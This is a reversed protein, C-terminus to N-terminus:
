AAHQRMFSDVADLLIPVLVPEVAHSMGDIVKLEAGPILFATDEGGALPILPDDRGHLVLTPREIAKLLEERERSAMTAAMQRVPGEPYISREFSKEAEARQYDEGPNFGPGALVMRAHTGIKIAEDRDYPDLPRTMLVASAEPTAQPLHPRSSTSMVSTLSITRAAHRFAFIQAIMGGMSEGMIHAKEIGLSDMMGAIDDAMDDLTYPAEITQGAMVKQMLEPINPIGLEPLKQSLGIDRNDFRIFRYGKAAMGEAFSDPWRILQSAFGMIHIVVPSDSLGFEEYELELGNAEVKAM